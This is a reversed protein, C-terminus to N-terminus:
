SSYWARVGRLIGTTIRSRMPPPEVTAANVRVAPEDIISAQADEAIESVRRFALDRCM